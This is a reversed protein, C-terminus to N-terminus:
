YIYITYWMNTPSARGKWGIFVLLMYCSMHIKTTSKKQFTLNLYLNKFTVSFILCCGHLLVMNSKNQFAQTDTDALVCLILRM